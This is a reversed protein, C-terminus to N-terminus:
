AAVPVRSLGEVHFEVDIVPEGPVLDPAVDFVVEIFEDMSPTEVNLGPIDSALTRYIHHESDYQATVNYSM